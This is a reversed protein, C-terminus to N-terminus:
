KKKKPETAEIKCSGCPTFGQKKAEALTMGTKGTKAQACNKAHFKKGTKTVYVTQAITTVFFMVILCLTLFLQKM